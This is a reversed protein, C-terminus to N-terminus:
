YVGHQVRLTAILDKIVICIVNTSTGARDMLEALERLFRHCKVKWKVGLNPVVAGRTGISRPPMIRWDVALEM